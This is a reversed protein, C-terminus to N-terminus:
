HMLTFNVEVALANPITGYFYVGEGYLDNNFEVGKLGLSELYDQCKMISERTLGVFKTTNFRKMPM